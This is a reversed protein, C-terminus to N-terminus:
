SYLNKFLSNIINLTAGSLSIAGGHGGYAANNDFVCDDINVVCGSQAQIVAGQGGTPVGTFTIGSFSVTVDNQLFFMRANAAILAGDLIAPLPVTGIITLDNKTFDLVSSSNHPIPGNSGDIIITDGSVAAGVALGLNGFPNAMSGDAGGVGSASVYYTTQAMMSSAVMLSMIFTLITIKKM